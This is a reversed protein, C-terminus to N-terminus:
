AHVPELTPEVSPVVIRNGFAYPKSFAGFDAMEYAPPAESGWKRSPKWGCQQKLLAAHEASKFAAISPDIVPVGLEAEMEQYFGTELTCGLILTEAYDEEVAQRGASILRDRTCDHDKQFEVVNMGVHRFSMLKDGYGYDRVTNHMQNVWKRQGVIISFNNALTLAIQCSAQCPATVIMDGSIERADHLATDYFCGIVFADFGEAAAQYAAKVIEATVIAEYARYELNTIPGISDPSFSTVHAETGPYKYDAIWNAMFQDYDSSGVPDLFMVKIPKM